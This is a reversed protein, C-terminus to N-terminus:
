RVWSPRLEAVRSLKLRWVPVCGRGTVIRSDGRVRDGAASGGAGAVAGNAAGRAVGVRGGARVAEAGGAARLRRRSWWWWKRREAPLRPDKAQAVACCFTDLVCPDQRGGTLACLRDYLRGPTRGPWGPWTASGSGASTRWCPRASGTSTACPAPAPDPAAPGAGQWAPGRGGGAPAAGGAAPARLDAASRVSSTACRRAPGRSCAPRTTWCSAVTSASGSTTRCRRWSPSTPRHTTASSGGAPM